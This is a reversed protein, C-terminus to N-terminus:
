FRKSAGSIVLLPSYSALSSPTKTSTSAESSSSMQVTDIAESSSSMQVTDITYCLYITYNYLVTDDIIKQFFYILAGRKKVGGGGRGKCALFSILAGPIIIIVTLIFVLVFHEVISGFCSM